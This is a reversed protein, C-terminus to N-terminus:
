LECVGVIGIRVPVNYINKAFSAGWGLSFTSYVPFNSNKTNLLVAQQDVLRGEYQRITMKNVLAPHSQCKGAGGGFM